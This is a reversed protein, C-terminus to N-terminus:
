YSVFCTLFCHNDKEEGVDVTRRASTDVDRDVFALVCTRGLAAPYNERQLFAVLFMFHLPHIGDRVVAFKIGGFEFLVMTDNILVFFEELIQGKVFRKKNGNGLRGVQVFPNPCLIRREWEGYVLDVRALGLV